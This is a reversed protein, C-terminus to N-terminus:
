RSKPADRMAVVWQGTAVFRPFTFWQELFIRSLADAPGKFPISATTEKFHGFGQVAFALMMVLLFSAARVWELQAMAFVLLVNAGVFLPVAIIHIVLNLRSGHFNSYGEWQWEALERINM